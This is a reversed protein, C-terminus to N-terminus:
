FFFFIRLSILKKNVFGANKWKEKKLIFILNLIKYFIYINFYESFIGMVNFEFVFIDQLFFEIKTMLYFFRTYYIGVEQNFVFLNM